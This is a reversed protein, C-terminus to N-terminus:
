PQRYGQPHPWRAAGGKHDIVGVIYDRNHAACVDDIHAIRNHAARILTIIVPDAIKAVTKHHVAARGVEGKDVAAVGVVALGAADADGAAGVIGVQQACRARISDSPCSVGVNAAGYVALAVIIDIVVALLRKIRSRFLADVGQVDHAKFAIVRQVASVANVANIHHQQIVGGACHINASICGWAM